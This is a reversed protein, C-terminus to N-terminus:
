QAKIIVSDFIKGINFFNLEPYEGDVKSLKIEIRVNTYDADPYGDINEEIISEVTDDKTMQSRILGVMDQFVLYVEVSSDLIEIELNDSNYIKKSVITTRSDWIDDINSGLKGYKFDFRDLRHENEEPVFFSVVAAGFM